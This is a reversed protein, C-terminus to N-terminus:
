ASPTWKDALPTSLTNDFRDSGLYVDRFVTIRCRCAFVRRDAIRTSSLARLDVARVMLRSVLGALSFCCCWCLCSCTRRDVSRSTVCSGVRSSICRSSLSHRTTDRRRDVCSPTCRSMTRYTPFIVVHSGSTFVSLMNLTTSTSFQAM